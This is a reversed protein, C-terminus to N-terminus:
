QNGRANITISIPIHNSVKEFHEKFNGDCYDNVSNVADVNVIVDDLKIDYSFHDFNNAFQTSTEKLTTKKDQVTRIVQIRGRDDIFYEEEELLNGINDQRKLNLNYDGLMFTYKSRTGDGENSLAHYIRDAIIRFENNRESVSFRNSKLHVNILRIESYDENKPWFRAYYPDRALERASSNRYNAIMPPVEVERSIGNRIYTKKALQVKDENWVFAYYEQKPITGQDPKDMDTVWKGGMANLANKLSKLTMQNLVEQLAVIHFGQEHIIRAILPIDIGTRNLSFDRLNFSGIKVSM